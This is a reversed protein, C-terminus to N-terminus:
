PRNRWEKFKERAEALFTEDKAPDYRQGEMWSLVTTKSTQPYQQRAIEYVKFEEPSLDLECIQPLAHSAKWADRRFADYEEKEMLGCKDCKVLDTQRSASYRTRFRFDKCSPCAYPRAYPNM